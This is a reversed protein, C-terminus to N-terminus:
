EAEQVRRALSQYLWGGLYLSVSLALLVFVRLMSNSGSLDFLLVKLGAACFLLLASQGLVKDKRQMAVILLLVAYCAWLVSLYIDRQIMEITCAMLALHGGYLALAANNAAKSKQGLQYYIGYLM